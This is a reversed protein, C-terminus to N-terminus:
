APPCAAQHAAQRLHYKGLVLLRFGVVNHSGKKVKGLGFCTIENHQMQPLHIFTEQDGGTSSNKNEKMM